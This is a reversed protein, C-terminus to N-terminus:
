AIAFASWFLAYRCEALPPIMYIENKRLRSLGKSARLHPLDHRLNLALGHSVILNTREVLLSPGVDRHGLGFSQPFQVKSKAVQHKRVNPTVLRWRTRLTDWRSITSQTM